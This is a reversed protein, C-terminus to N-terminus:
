ESIFLVQNDYNNPVKGIYNNEFNHRIEDHIMDMIDIARISQYTENMKTDDNITVLSNVGRGIKVKEGDNILILEGAEVAADGDAIENIATVEPFVLYTASRDFPLGAIAGAVRATFETTTVEMDGIKIGDTTLNLVGIHDAAQNALVAKVMKRDRKRVVKVWEAIVKANATDAYPAAVYDVKRYKLTGLAKEYDGGEGKIRVALVERPGGECAMKIYKESDESWGVIDDGYKYSVVPSDDSTVTDDELLLAVIGEAIRAKRVILEAFFNINITPLGM